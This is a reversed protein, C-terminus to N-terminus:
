EDGTDGSSDFCESYAPLATRRWDGYVVPEGDAAAPILSFELCPYCRNDYVMGQWDRGSDEPDASLCWGDGGDVGWAISDELDPGSVTLQLSDLFLADDMYQGNLLEIRVYRLRVAGPLSVAFPAVGALCDQERLRREDADESLFSYEEGDDSIGTISYLSRTGENLTGRHACDIDLWYTVGDPDQGRAAQPHVLLCAAALSLCGIAMQRRMTM